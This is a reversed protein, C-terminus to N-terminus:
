LLEGLGVGEDDAGGLLVALVDDGAAALQVDFDAEVVQLLLVGVALDDLGVGDDGVLLGDGRLGVLHAHGLGGVLVVANVAERNGQAFSEGILYLLAADTGVVLGLGPGVQEGVVVLPVLVLGELDPAEAGFVGAGVDDDVDGLTDLVHVLELVGHLGAELPGGLFAGDGLLVHSADAEVEGVADEVGIGDM